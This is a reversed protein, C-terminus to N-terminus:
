KVEVLYTCNATLKLPLENKKLIDKYVPKLKGEERLQKLQEEGNVKKGMKEYARYPNTTEKDICYVIVEKGVVDEEFVLTEMMEPLNEEFLESAYTLLVAYGDSDKTPVVFINEDEVSYDLLGEKLKATMVHANYIPKAIFNLTFFNRFGTFDETVFKENQGSLCILMKEIPFKEKLFVSIMKAFYSAYVETERFIMGPAAKIDLFGGGAAGWEDVIFKIDTMGVEEIISLYKKMKLVNNAVNIPRTGDNMEEPGTGYNQVSIFDQPINNDKVFQLFKKFFDMDRALAPGGVQIKDSVRKVGRAFAAYLKKYEEFRPENVFAELNSMFFSRWDPENFCQMRWKSVTDIGYREVLHKTYEYCVEEWLEYSAPPSTIMDKGKYRIKASIIKPDRAICEPMMGYAILLNFGREKLYDLRLDNVRFDYTLNKNEDMLVIDEFMAYIRVTDAAKDESIKDLIRKGWSDEVADTPHFLCNNWYNPQQKLIQETIKIM